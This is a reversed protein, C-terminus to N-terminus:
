VVGRRRAGRIDGALRARVAELLPGRDVSPRCFDAHTRTPADPRAHLAVAEAEAFFGRNGMKLYSEAPLNEALLIDHGDLEVHWYTVSDVALQVITDGDVLAIAPILVEGM